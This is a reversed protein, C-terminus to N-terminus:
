KQTNQGPVDDSPPDAPADSPQPDNFDSPQINEFLNPEAGAEAESGVGGGICGEGRAEEFEVRAGQADLGPEEVAHRRQEVAEVLLADGPADHGVLGFAQGAGDDARQAEGLAAGAHDTAVGGGAGLGEGVGQEVGAGVGANLGGAAEVDAVVDAVDDGALGGAHAGDGGGVAVQAAGLGDVGPLGVHDDLM